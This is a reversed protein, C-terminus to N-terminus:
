HIHFKCQSETNPFLIMQYYTLYRFTVAALNVEWMDRGWCPNELWHNNGEQTSKQLNEGDMEGEREGEIEPEKKKEGGSQM